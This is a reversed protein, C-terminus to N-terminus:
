PAKDKKAEWQVCGFDPETTVDGDGSGVAFKRREPMMSLQCGKYPPGDWWRCTDCRPVPIYETTLGGEPDAFCLGPFTFTGTKLNEVYRDWEPDSDIPAITIEM